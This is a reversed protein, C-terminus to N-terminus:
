KRVVRWSHVAGDVPFWVQQRIKNTQGGLMKPRVVGPLVVVDYLEKVAGELRLWEVTAGTNLDIVLLGCRATTGRQQLHKDLLLGSFSREKRCKSLGIVAYNNVFTLGRAYGPCFAVREFAGKAMDVYGLYGTGAEILWLRGQQWRPSHPMSLSDCVIKELDVDLVGGGDRRHDRWAESVDSRGCFTVFKPKSDLMALGNLHCRDEAALRSVFPPKWIPEFSYRQSTTALCSFLTNVFLLQENADMALDHINLNGTVFAVQPVYLRDFRATPKTPELVNEVRWLQVGSSIRM